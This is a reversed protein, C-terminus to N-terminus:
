GIIAYRYTKDATSNAYHKITATGQGQETTYISSSAFPAVYSVTTILSATSPRTPSTQSPYTQMSIQTSSASWALEVYDNAQLEILYNWALIVTGATGGHSNPISAFGSSGVVDSGNKRLWVTVDQIATDTNQFQGSWQINYTGYNRVNMRGGNSLYVGNAYDTTNLTMAYATTTSAITQDTFDQFAGYPASDEYAAESFPVFVIISDPGIRRDTLTTSTANGTALTVTGTNNTKGNMIGNVIEAVGRQDGGFVPLTRFQSTM